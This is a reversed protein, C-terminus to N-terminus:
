WSEQAPRPVCGDIIPVVTNNSADCKDSKGAFKSVTSDSPMTGEKQPLDASRQPNQSQKTARQTDPSVDPRYPAAFSIGGADITASPLASRASESTRGQDPRTGPVYAAAAAKSVAESKEVGNERPSEIKHEPAQRHAAQSM